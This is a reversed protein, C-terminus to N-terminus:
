RLRKAFSVVGTRTQMFGANVCLGTRENSLTMYGERNAEVFLPVPETSYGNRRLAEVAHRMVLAMNAPSESNIRVAKGDAGASRLAVMMNKFAQVTEKSEGTNRALSEFSQIENKMSEESMVADLNQDRAPKLPAGYISEGCFQLYVPLEIPGKPTSGGSRLEFSQGRLSNESSAEYSCEELEITGDFSNEM